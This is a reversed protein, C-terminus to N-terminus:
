HIHPPAGRRTVSHMIILPRPDARLDFELLHLQRQILIM